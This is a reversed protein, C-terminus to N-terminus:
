DLFKKLLWIVLFIILVVIVIGVWVGAEFIDVALECGSLTVLMLLFIYIRSFNLSNM